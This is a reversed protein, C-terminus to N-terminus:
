CWGQLLFIEAWVAFVSRTLAYRGCCVFIPRADPVAFQVRPPPILWAYKNSWEMTRQWALDAAARNYREPTAECNFGHVAGAYVYGEHPVHAATLDQDYAPWTAALRTDLEGHHVRIAGKIKPINFFLNKVLQLKITSAGRTRDGELDDEAAIQIEHWDFGTACGGIQGDDM